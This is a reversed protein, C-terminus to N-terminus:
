FCMMMIVRKKKIPLILLQSSECQEEGIAKDQLTLVQYNRFIYDTFDGLIM